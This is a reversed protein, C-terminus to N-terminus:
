KAKEADINSRYHEFVYKNFFRFENESNNELWINVPANFGSKKKYITQSPLYKELLKKLIYKGQYGKLKYHPPITAAYEVLDSDLFPARAELSSAMTARDVKVLIDDALWTKADIYQHQSLKDIHPVEDYYQKFINFPATEIVEEKHDMGILQIREDQNFLERWAYHAYQYDESFGKSFQRMKFGLGVKKNTEVSIKNLIHSIIVKLSVPLFIFKEKILDAKYTLYGGFIEDGGDGSLVVKVHQSALKSVEVMPIISTDSFPEDYCDISHNIVGINKKIDLVMEHHVTKLYDSIFKADSAEDYSDEVFKVTFTLLNYPIYKKAIAIVGSSDIGGSLFAGVPVDSILRYKVAKELLYVLTEIIEGESHKTQNYFYDKYEWFRSKEVIKGEKYRLYTSPELKYVENYISFPSLIYGLAFYHNLAAISVMLKEKILEDELLATLESAFTMENNIMTYYLPKKGFRDRAMILEKEKSDWIALAFMGNFKEFCKIDWHVFSYLVVETDSNSIFHYGEKQLEKRLEQYNYVEGNYTITYRGTLDQMPQKAKDSLDIISLRRHGFIAIDDINIIGSNDPGRHNLRNNIKCIVNINPCHAYNIKGSIGCM